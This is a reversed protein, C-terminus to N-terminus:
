GMTFIGIKPKASGQQQPFNYYKAYYEAHNGNSPNSAYGFPLANPNITNDEIHHLHKADSILYDSVTPINNEM